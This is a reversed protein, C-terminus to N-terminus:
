AIRRLDFWNFDDNHFNFALVVEFEAPALRALLKELDYWEAWPTRDGDTMRGWDAFAPSGDRRWREEPYALEIWRGGVPLHQLLKTCEERMVEFPANLMSGQCWLVEFAGVDDIDSLRSLHHFEIDEVALAAALRRLVALNSDVIDICTLHAGAMAFSLADIGFGSGVDAVRKDRLIDKYLCHYWGRVPFGHGTTTQHVTARWQALLEDDAMDLFSVSDGRDMLGAPIERWKERLVALAEDVSIGAQMNM